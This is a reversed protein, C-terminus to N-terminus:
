LSSSDVQGVAPPCGPQITDGLRLPSAKLIEQNLKINATLNKQPYRKDSTFNGEIGLKYVTIM